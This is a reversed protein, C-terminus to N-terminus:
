EASIDMWKQDSKGDFSGWIYSSALPKESSKETIIGM